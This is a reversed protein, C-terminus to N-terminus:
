WQNAHISLSLRKDEESPWPVYGEEMTSRSMQISKKSCFKAIAGSNVVTFAYAAGTREREGIHQSLDTYLLAIDYM